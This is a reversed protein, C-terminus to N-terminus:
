NGADLILWRNGQRVFRAQTMQGNQMLAALSPPLHRMNSGMGAVYDCIFGPKGQAKECAIKEFRSLNFSASNVETGGNKLGGTIAIQLCQMAMVPDNQFDRRNCREAVDSMGENIAAFRSELAAKMEQATPEAMAASAGLGLAGVILWAARRRAINSLTHTM